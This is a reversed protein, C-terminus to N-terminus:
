RPFWKKLNSELLEAIQNLMALVGKAADNGRDSMIEPATTFVRDPMSDM